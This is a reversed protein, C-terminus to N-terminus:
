RKTARIFAIFIDKLDEWFCLAIQDIWRKWQKKRNGEAKEDGIEELDQKVRNYMKINENDYSKTELVEIKNELNQTRQNKEKKLKSFARCFKYKLFSINGCFIINWFIGSWKNM